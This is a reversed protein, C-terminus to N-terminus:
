AEARALFRGPREGTPAGARWVPLGNVMVSHIGDAPVQPEAYTARDAVTAPDFLVIDAFAGPRLLGRDALRFTQAPLGTMRHVAAEISLLGKDRVYRALVRPFTGWLRPHPHAMGPLGDSGIMTRPYALIRELDGEDMEFYIGGAPYLRRAAEDESCGWEAAVEALRRGATEPYAESFAVLVDEAEAVMEPLLVTSSATYPYVDLGVAQREAAADIVALTERSRGSNKRGACTHHSVVVPLRAKGAIEFAEDLAELVQDGEDRMHTVYLANEFDSIHRALQVVEGTTAAASGPYALGSSLGLSGQALAERLRAGMVAIGDEGAAQTYHEGLAEARLTGHGTLLGLNVGPPRASLTERYAAVDPFFDDPSGLLSLPDPFADGPRFPALSIGCNGAIVTSVGQSVKFAMDPTALVARDDHTHVDIFGPAVALGSAEVVEDATWGSLAGVAAIRDSEVAVDAEVPAAGSGDIVSGGRILLHCRGSGPAPGPSTDDQDRM